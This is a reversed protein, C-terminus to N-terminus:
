CSAITMVEVRVLKEDGSWQVQLPIRISYEAVVLDDGPLNPEPWSEDYWYKIATIGTIEHVRKLSHLSRTLMLLRDPSIKVEKLAYAEVLGDRECKWCELMREIAKFIAEFVYRELESARFAPNRRGIRCRGAAPKPLRAFAALEYSVGAPGLQGRVEGLRIFWYSERELLMEIAHVGGLAQVDEDDYIRHQPGGDPSAVFYVIAEIM